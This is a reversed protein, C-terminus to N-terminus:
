SNRPWQRKIMDAAKEGIMFSAANTHATPTEPIISTDVVRLNNIGHVKLEPSVVATPDSAPGMKCTSIQHHLTSALTRISCRWYNDSGFHLHACNSLPVSHLRTGLAKFPPTQALRLSFKIGELLTEVDDPHKFFNPYFRPWQFPNASKLEMYGVSKPHFIMPMISFTDIRTDELEKYVPNYISKRVRMGRAIGAGEDSHFGGPIFILEVDPVSAGRNNNVRTKIFSLAEVGGPVTMIGRGRVYELIASPQLARETNLSQGTTNVVFTPGLHSIHDNLIKGVPLERIVPIGLRSLDRKMGVGSLMLLQPSQVTGASLIVENRAIVHFRKRNRLFEVGSATKTKPDILIKTVRTNVMIHLNPRNLIPEIFAKFASHRKGRFTNAQLFSAGLQQGSNYDVENMGFYKHAKVFAEALVTRHQNYEVNLWGNKNHAASNRLDGLTSRESRLFYPLVENWSWGVNGAAAWRDYDNKNGRNYIMYNIVSSGGLAKGRPYGCRQSEMGLIFNFIISRFEQSIINTLSGLCSGAQPETSYGWNYATRQMYAALVPVEQAPTEVKGAEILLVNWNPNESLRNALVCGGPGSGVIM